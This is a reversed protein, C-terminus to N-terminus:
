DVLRRIDPRFNDAPRLRTIHTSLETPEVGPHLSAFAERAEMLLMRVLSAEPREMFWHEESYRLDPTPSHAVWVSLQYQEVPEVVEDEDSM